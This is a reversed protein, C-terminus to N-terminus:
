RRRIKKSLRKRDLDDVALQLAARYNTVAEAKDGAQDGLTESRGM